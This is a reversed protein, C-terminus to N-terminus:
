KSVNEDLLDERHEEDVTLLPSGTAGGAFAAGAGILLLFFAIISFKGVADAAEDAAEIAETKVKAYFREAKDVAKNIKRDWKQIVGNIEAESLETNKTLYEKIDEKNLIEGADAGTITLDGNDDLNVSLDNFFEDINEDLNLDNIFQQSERETKNMTSRVEESADSPLINKREAKNILQFAEEKIQELSFTTNEEGDDQASKLEEAINTATSDTFISQTASALGNFIGGITSTVLFISLLIYLGWALFGHLGGDSNSPLGSMRGAVMGGVFLAAVNAVAWWIITATGLGDLTNSETMPDITTLGIGLGLLNLLFLVVLATLTGALVAGWSIRSFKNKSNEIEIYQNRM